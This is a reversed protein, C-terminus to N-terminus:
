NIFRINSAAVEFPEEMKVCLFTQYGTFTLSMIIMMCYVLIIKGMIENILESCKWISSYANKIGLVKFYLQCKKSNEGVLHVNSHLAKHDMLFSKLIKLCFNLNFRILDCYFSFLFAIFSLLIVTWAGRIMNMSFEISKKNHFHEFYKMSVVVCLYFVLHFTLKKIFYFKFTRYNICQNTFIKLQNAITGLDLFIRKHLGTCYLSSLNAFMVTGFIAAWTGFTTSFELVNAAGILSVNKQLMEETERKQFSFAMFINDALIVIMIVIFNIWYQKTPWKRFYKSNLEVFLNEITFLHLGFLQFVYLCPKLEREILSYNLM